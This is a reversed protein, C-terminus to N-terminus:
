SDWLEVSKHEWGSVDTNEETGLWNPQSNEWEGVKQLLVPWLLFLSSVAHFFM